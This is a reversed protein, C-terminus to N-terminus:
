ATHTPSSGGGNNIGSGKADAEEQTEENENALDFLSKPDKSSGGPVNETTAIYATILKNIADSPEARTSFRFLSNFGQDGLARARTAMSDFYRRLNGEHKARLHEFLHFASAALEGSDKLASADLPQVLFLM